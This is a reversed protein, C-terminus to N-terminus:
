ARPGVWYDDQYSPLLGTDTDPCFATWETTTGHETEVSAQEVPVLGPYAQLLKHWAVYDCGDFLITLVRRDPDGKVILPGRNNIERIVTYTYEWVIEIRTNPPLGVEAIIKDATNKRVRIKKIQIATDTLSGDCPEM